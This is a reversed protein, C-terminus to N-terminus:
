YDSFFKSTNSCACHALPFSNPVYLFVQKEGRPPKFRNPRLPRLPLPSPKKYFGPNPRSIAAAATKVTNMMSEHFLTSSHTSMKLESLEASKLALVKRGSFGVTRAM